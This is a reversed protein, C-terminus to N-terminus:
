TWSRRGLENIASSPDTSSDAASAASLLPRLFETARAAAESRASERDLDSVGRKRPSRRKPKGVGRQLLALLDFIFSERSAADDERQWM